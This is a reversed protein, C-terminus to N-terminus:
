QIYKLYRTQNSPGMALNLLFVLDCVLYCGFHKLWVFLCVKKKYGDHTPSVIGGVVNFKGTKGHLVDRALELSFISIDFFKNHCARVVFPHSLLWYWSWPIYDFIFPKLFFLYFPRLNLFFKLNKLRSLDCVRPWTYDM